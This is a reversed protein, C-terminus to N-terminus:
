AAKGTFPRPPSLLVTLSLLVLPSHCFSSFTLSLAGARGM